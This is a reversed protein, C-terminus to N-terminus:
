HSALLMHVGSRHYTIENKVADATIADPEMRLLNNLGDLRDIALEFGWRGQGPHLEVAAIGANSKQQLVLAVNLALTSAGLGGRASIVGVIAGRPPLNEGPFPTTFAQNTTKSRRLLARVQLALEKPHTPKTLFGDIGEEFATVKDEIQSKATFMLIPTHATLPNGRIRRAVEYGDMEPMMVDLLVLDPHETTVIHLGSHGDPATFVAYELRELMLKVLRLTELDDDIVLIKEAM